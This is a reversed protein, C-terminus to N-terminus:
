PVRFGAERSRSRNGFADVVWLTWYYDGPELATTVPMSTVSPDIGDRSESEILNPIGAADVLFLDVRYTFAFPLQAPRWELMPTNTEIFIFGQPSLTQPTLEIIRVLSTPPGLSTNGSADRVEIRLTQGLLSEVGPAPLEAVGLTATFRDGARTLEASFGLDPVVLAAGDVDEPRDPDDAVAKVELQFVPDDPVWRMIHVTRMSQEAVVPLADLRITTEAATGPAVSVTDSAARFGDQEAVVAYPGTPVGGLVFQGEANTRTALEPRGVAGIPVLRVRIDARGDFPPYLETVEGSVTGEDRFDDSLPDLPNTRAADGCGWGAASGLVVVSVIPLWYRFM